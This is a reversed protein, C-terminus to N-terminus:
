RNSEPLAEVPMPRYFHFGQFLDCGLQRLRKAQADTEVGEAVIRLSLTHGLSLITKILIQHHEDTDMDRVFSQDIKLEDIPLRNLYGLSSYGTGFDDLSFRVGARKLRAMKEIVQEIDIMLMSETIELILQQPKAGTEALTILVKEAFDIARLQRVSVNVSITWHQRLPHHQWAVLQKCAQALIADGLRVIDDSQEAIPIFVGPSILGKSPHQWRILAELGAIEGEADVKPQYHLLLQDTGIAARLEQQIELQESIIQQIHADYFCQTNRGAEKARYMAQDAQQLIVDIDGERGDILTIGTSLTIHAAQQGVQFPENLLREIKQLVVEVQAAAKDEQPALKTLLVVFEDGGLRAVTDHDRVLNELRQGVERLMRDGEAHGYSDNLQKFKDVDIFLVAAFEHKLMAQKVTKDLRQRLLRRNPLQTLADYYALLNIQAEARKRETIDAVVGNWLQGEEASLEGPVSHVSVWRETGEQLLRGEWYFERVNRTANDQQQYFSAADEPHLQQYVYQALSTSAPLPQKLGLIDRFRESTYTMQHGHERSLKFQFVGIPILRTLEHYQAISHQLATRQTHIELNAKNLLRKARIYGIVTAAGFLLWLLLPTVLNQAWQGVVQSLPKSAMVTLAYEEVNEIWAYHPKLSGLPGSNIRIFGGDLNLVDRIERNVPHSFIDHLANASEPLPQVYALHGDDRVVSLAFRNSTPMRAWSATGGDIQNGATLVGMLVDGSTDYVPVRFPILWQGVPEFFYPQGVKFREHEIVQQFSDGTVGHRQVNFLPARLERTSAAVFNGEVDLLGYGVLGMDTEQARALFRDGSEPDNFVDRYSLEEAMGRLVLEFTRLHSRMGQAMLQSTHALQQRSDSVTRQWTYAAIALAAIIFLVSFFRAFVRLVTVRDQYAPLASLTM